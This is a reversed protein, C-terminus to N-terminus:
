GAVVRKRATRRHAQAASQAEYGVPYHLARAPVLRAARRVTRAMRELRAEDAATWELDLKRRLAPPLSGVTFDHLVHRGFPKAAAWVVRPVLPNPRAVDTLALSALVDRTSDNAILRDRVMADVYPALGDLSAPMDRDRIGLQLGVHRWELFLQEREARSLRPGVGDLYHLVSDVNSLHVWAWAEPMLASYHEGDFGTGRIDRHLERLRAAEIATRHGGLLQLLLSEVTRDLRGWPDTRFDSFDRVGAGIVPHAVQMLLSRGAYLLATREFGLRWVISEPGLPELEAPSSSDTAHGSQRLATM